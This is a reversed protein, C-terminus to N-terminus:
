LLAAAPALAAAGRLYTGAASALEYAGRLTGYTGVAGELVHLGTTLGKQIAHGTDELYGSWYM